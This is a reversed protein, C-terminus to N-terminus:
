QFNVNASRPPMGSERGGGVPGLEKTKAYMKALFNGRRLDVGCLPHVGGHPFDKIRWQNM